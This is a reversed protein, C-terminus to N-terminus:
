RGAEDVGTNIGELGKQAGEEPLSLPFSDFIKTTILKNKRSRRHIPKFPPLLPELVLYISIVATTIKFIKKTRDQEKQRPSSDTQFPIGLRYTTTTIQTEM